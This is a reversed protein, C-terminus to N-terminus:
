LSRPFRRRVQSRGSRWADLALPPALRYIM